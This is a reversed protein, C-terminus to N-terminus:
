GTACFYFRRGTVGTWGCGRAREASCRAAMEGRALAGLRRGVLARARGERAENGGRLLEGHIAVVFSEQVLGACGRHDQVLAAAVGGHVAAPPVGDVIGAGHVAHMWGVHVLAHAAMGRHVAAHVGAAHVGAHAAHVGAPHAHVGAHVRPHTAAAAVVGIRALTVVAVAVAIAVVLVVVLRTPTGLLVLRGRLVDAVERDPEHVRVDRRALGLLDLDLRLHAKLPV